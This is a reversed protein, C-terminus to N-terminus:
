GWGNKKGSKFQEKIADWLSESLEKVQLVHTVKEANFCDYFKVDNVLSDSHAILSKYLHFYFSGKWFLNPKAYSTTWSYFPSGNFLFLIYRFVATTPLNPLLNPFPHNQKHMSFSSNSLHSKNVFFDGRWTQHLM